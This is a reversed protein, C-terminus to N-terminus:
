MFIDGDTMIFLPEEKIKRKIFAVEVWECDLLVSKDVHNSLAKWVLIKNPKIGLEEELNLAFEEYTAVSEM